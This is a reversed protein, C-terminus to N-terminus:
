RSSGTNNVPASGGVPNSRDSTSGEVVVQHVSIRPETKPVPTPKEVQRLTVEEVQQSQSDSNSESVPIYNIPVVTPIPPLSLNQSANLHSDSPLNLLAEKALRDSTSLHNWIGITTVLSLSAFMYKLGKNQDQKKRANKDNEAM